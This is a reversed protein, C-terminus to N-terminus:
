GQQVNNTKNKRKLKIVQKVSGKRHKTSAKSSEIYQIDVSIPSNFVCTYLIHTQSYLHIDLFHQNRNPAFTYRKKMEGSVDQAKQSKPFTLESFASVQPGSSVAAALLFHVLSDCCGCHM